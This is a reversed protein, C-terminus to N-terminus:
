ILMWAYNSLPFTAFGGFCRETIQRGFLDGIEDLEVALRVTGIEVESM